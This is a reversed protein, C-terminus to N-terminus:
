EIMWKRHGYDYIRYLPKNHDLYKLSFIGGIAQAQETPYKELIDIDNIRQCKTRFLRTNFDTYYYSPQQTVTVEKFGIKDYVNGNSLRNNSFSILREKCEQQFQKVIKGLSGYVYYNYNIAFRAIEWCKDLANKRFSACVVLEGNYQLGYAFSSQVHGDLHFSNFFNRFDKNKNFKVLTCNSPRLRIPPLIGLRHRIMAKVLEQKKFWEDEYIVFLDIGNENCLAKKKINNTAANPRVKTSHWYLGDVEIGLKKSPIYIDLEMPNIINKTNYVIEGNYINQIYEFIETQINSTTCSCKTCRPNNRFNNISIFFTHGKKCSLKIVTDHANTYNEMDVFTFENNKVHEQIKDLTLKSNTIQKDINCQPCIHTHKSINRSCKNWSKSFSGHTKCKFVIPTTNNVYTNDIVTINDDYEKIINTINDINLRRGHNSYDRDGKKRLVKMKVELDKAKVYGIGKIFFKHDASCEVIGKTTKIKYIINHQNKWHNTITKYETKQTNHNYSLAQIDKGNQLQKYLNSASVTGLNTKIKSNGKICNAGAITATVINLYVTEDQDTIWEIYTKSDSTKKWSHFELYPRLARFFANVYQIAKASQQKIAAMHAVPMRFHLMCLVELAAAGLTNHSISGNSWYSHDEEVTLDFFHASEIHEKQFSLWQNNSPIANHVDITFPKIYKDKKYTGNVFGIKFLKHIENGNIILDHILHKQLDHKRSNTRFHANIGWSALVIQLQKLMKGATISIYIDNRSDFTGNTDFLGNFFGLMSSQNAYCYEPIEKEWQSNIASVCGDGALLGLFYGNNYEEQDIEFGNAFPTNLNYCILDNDKLDCVRCWQEIGDRLIWYKHIPTSTLEVNNSLTLKVGDKYGDDVWEIVKKWNKGSWIVDGIEIDEINILGSKTLLKSGKSQCKYSDRSSLMCVQPCDESQGSRMLSYIRWMSDIPGHTSTPYVVGMPFLIGLFLYMWAQLEEASELPRLVLEKKLSDRQEPTLNEVQSIDM